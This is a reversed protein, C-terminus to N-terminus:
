LYPPPVTLNLYNNELLTRLPDKYVFSHTRARGFLLSYVAGSLIYFSMRQNWDCVALIDTSTTSPSWALSWVPAGGPRTIVVKEDGERNRISIKGSELGFAIFRGDNTWSCCCIRSRDMKTKDVTKAQESWVGFDSTACSVLNHTVPNFALCQIAENHTYKLM